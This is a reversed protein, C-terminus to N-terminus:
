GGSARRYERVADDDSEGSATALGLLARAQAYSERALTYRVVAAQSGGYGPVTVRERHFKMGRAELGTVDSHLCTTGLERVAELTHWSRGTLFSALVRQWKRRWAPAAPAQDACDDNLDDFRNM